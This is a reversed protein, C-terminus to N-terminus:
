FKQSSRRFPACTPRYIFLYTPLDTPLYYFDGSDSVEGGEGQLGSGREDDDDERMVVVVIVLMGERGERGIYAQGEKTTMM